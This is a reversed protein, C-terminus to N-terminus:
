RKGEGPGPARKPRGSVLAQPDENLLAALERLQESVAAIQALTDHVDPIVAAVQALTNRADPIAASARDSLGTASEVLAPVGVTRSELQDALKGVATAAARIQRETEPLQRTGAEINDLTKTAADLLRAIREASTADLVGQVKALVDDLRGALSALSSQLEDFIEPELRIQAPHEASTDLPRGGPASFDLELQPSSTLGAAAMRAFTHETLTYAADVTIDIRVTPFAGRVFSIRQVLGVPVGRFFVTSQERLGTVSLNTEIVYPARTPALPRILLYLAVLTVSGIVLLLATRWAASLKM